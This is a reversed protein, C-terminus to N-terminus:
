EVSTVKMSTMEYKLGFAESRLLNRPNEASGKLVQNLCNGSLVVFPLKKGRQIDSVVVYAKTVIETEDSLSLAGCENCKMIKADEATEFSEGLTCSKCSRRSEVKLVSM